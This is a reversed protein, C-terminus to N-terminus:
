QASREKVINMLETRLMRLEYKVDNALDRVEQSTQQSHAAQTQIKEELVAVRKDMGSAYAFISAAIVLTTLLHSINLTKDLHWQRREPSTVPYRSQM